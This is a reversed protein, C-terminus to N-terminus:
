HIIQTDITPSITSSLANEYVSEVYIFRLQTCTQFAYLVQNQQNIKKIKKHLYNPVQIKQITKICVTNHHQM